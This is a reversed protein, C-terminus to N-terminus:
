APRAENYTHRRAQKRLNAKYATQFVGGEWLAQLSEINGEEAMADHSETELITNANVVLAAKM